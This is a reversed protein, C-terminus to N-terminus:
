GKATKHINRVFRGRIIQDNTNDQYTGWSLNEKNNDNKRHNKHRVVLHHKEKKIFAEAVLRHITTHVCKKNRSLNVLLYGCAHKQPTLISLHMSGNNKSIKISAVTGADSVYYGSYGSIKKWNEQPDNILFSRLKRYKKKKQSLM